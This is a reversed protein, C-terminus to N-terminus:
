NRVNTEIRHNYINDVHGNSGFDAVEGLRLQRGGAITFWAFPDNPYVSNTPSQATERYILASPSTDTAINYEGDAGASIVLPFLVFTDNNPDTDPPSIRSDSETIDFPDPGLTLGNMESAFGPSWRLFDIPRGWADLIEPMGDKDFDGIENEAFLELASADGVEMRSLIMYLCEAGQYTRDKSDITGDGTWTQRNLYYHHLAPKQIGTVTTPVTEVVDTIRDPLEYKIYERVANLRLEGPTWGVSAPDLDTRVSLYELSEWKEALLEHIKAIQAKTRQIKALNQMGAMGYLVISALITLITISVLLEVLTFATRTTTATRQNM